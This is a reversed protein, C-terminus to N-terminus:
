AVTSVQILETHPRYKTVTARSHKVLNQSTPMRILALPQDCLEPHARIIAAIPFDAVLLCAIRRTAHNKEAAGLAPDLPQTEQMTPTTVSVADAAGAGPIFRGRYM